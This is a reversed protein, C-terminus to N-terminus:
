ATTKITKLQQELLELEKKFQIKLQEFYANGNEMQQVLQYSESTKLNALALELSGVRKKTEIIKAKLLEKNDITDSAARFSQESELARLIMLVRALDSKKRALNLEAMIRDGKKKLEDVLVDPHCIRCAKRYAIELAKQREESLAYQDQSISGDDEKDFSASHNFMEQYKINSPANVLADKANKTEKAAKRKSNLIQEQANLIEKVAEYEQYLEDYEDSFEDKIKLSEKLSEAQQRIKEVRPKIAEFTAKQAQFLSEKILVKQQFIASKLGLVKQIAAGLKINCEGRNFEDMELIVDNKREALQQVLKELLKLAQKLGQLEKDEPEKILGTNDVFYQDIAQIAHAFHNRDLLNLIDSVKVDYELTKIKRMQLAILENDELVICTKILKLRKLLEQM